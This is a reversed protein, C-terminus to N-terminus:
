ACRRQRNVARAAGNHGTHPASDSSLQQASAHSRPLAPLGAPQAAAVDAAAKSLDLLHGYSSARRVFTTSVALKEHAEEGGGGGRHAGADSASGHLQEASRAPFADSPLPRVRARGGRVSVEGREAVDSATDCGRVSHSGAPAARSEAKTGAASAVGRRAAEAAARCREAAAIIDKYRSYFQGENKVFFDNAKRVEADLAGFFACEEEAAPTEGYPTETEVTTQTPRRVCLLDACCILLVALRVHACLRAHRAQPAGEPGPESRRVTILNVANRWRIRPAPGRQFSLWVRSLPGGRQFSDGRRLSRSLSGLLSRVGGASRDHAASDAGAPAADAGGDADSFFFGDDPDDEHQDRVAALLLKLGAYNVYAGAWEPVCEEALKRAFQVQM